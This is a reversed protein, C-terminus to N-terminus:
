LKKILYKVVGWITCESDAGVSLSKLENNESTLWTEGAEVKVRKLIFEGDVFAVVLCGDYPENSKDIILIDGCSEAGKDVLRAFFTSAPSSILERNLDLNPRPYTSRSQSSDGEGDIPLVIQDDLDTGFFPLNDSNFM